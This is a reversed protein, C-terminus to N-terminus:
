GGAALHATLRKSTNPGYKGDVNKGTFGLAVQMAMVSKWTKDGYRGDANTFVAWDRALLILQLEKVAPKSVAEDAKTLEPDGSPAVLNGDPARDPQKDGPPSVPAGSATAFAQRYYAADDAHAPAIEV